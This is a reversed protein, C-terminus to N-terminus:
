QGKALEAIRENANGTYFGGHYCIVNEIDYEALKGLSKVAMDTDYNTFPDARMLAGDKVSLLDGAILTKSQKLYLCIHGTTHGPTHIIKIGGCNSLEEGDALTVDVRAMNNQYAAKMSQYIQKMNEPLTDIRAELSALKLPQKEGVIYPKEEEHAYTVVDPLEKQIAALGGVHDIDQHTIIVMRLRDFPVGAKEIAERLIPLQGPLGADVLIMTEEDWILAPCITNTNGGLDVTLELMEIGESVKV